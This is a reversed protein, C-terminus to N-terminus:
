NKNIFENKAILLKSEPVLLENVYCIIENTDKTIMTHSRGMRFTKNYVNNKIIINHNKIIVNIGYEELLGGLPTSSSRLKEILEVPLNKKIIKLNAELLKNDTKKQKIVSERLYIHDTEIHKYGVELVYIKGFNIKLNPTLLSKKNLISYSLALNKELVSTSFFHKYLDNTNWNNNISDM